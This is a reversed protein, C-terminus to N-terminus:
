TPNVHFRAQEHRRSAHQVLTPSLHVHSPSSSETHFVGFRIPTLTTGLAIVPSQSNHNCFNTAPRLRFQKVGDEDVRAGVEVLGVPSEVM